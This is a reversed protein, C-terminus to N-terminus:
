ACSLSEAVFMRYMGLVVGILCKFTTFQRTAQDQEM